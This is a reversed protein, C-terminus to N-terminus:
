GPRGDCGTGRAPALAVQRAARAAHQREADLPPSSAPRRKMSASCTNECRALTPSALLRTIWGADVVCWCNVVSSFSAPPM